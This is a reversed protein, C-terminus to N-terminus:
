SRQHIAELAINSMKTKVRKQKPWLDLVLLLM